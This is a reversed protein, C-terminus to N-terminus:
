GLIPDSSDWERITNCVPFKSKFYNLMPAQTWDLGDQGELMSTMLFERHEHFIAQAEEVDAPYTPDKRQEFFQVRKTFRIKVYM